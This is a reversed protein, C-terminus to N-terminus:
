KLIVAAVLRPTGRQDLPEAVPEDEFDIVGKRLSHIHTGGVTVHLTRILRIRNQIRIINLEVLPQCGEAHLLLEVGVEAILQRKPAALSPDASGATKH